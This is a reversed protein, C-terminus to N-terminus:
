RRERPRWPSQFPKELFDCHGSGPAELAQPGQVVRRGRMRLQNGAEPSCVRGCTKEKPKIAVKLVEGSNEPGLPCNKYLLLYVTSKQDVQKGAMRLLSDSNLAGRGGRCGHQARRASELVRMLDGRFQFGSTGLRQTHSHFIACCRPFFNSLKEYFGSMFTDYLGAVGHAWFSLSTHAWVFAQVCINVAANDVTAGFHFYHFLGDAPSHLCRSTQGYPAIDKAMFISQLSSM